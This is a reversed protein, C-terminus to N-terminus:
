RFADELIIIKMCDDNKNLIVEIVDFRCFLEYENHTLLFFNATLRIKNQKYITVYEKPNIVSCDYRTKVEIFTLIDSKKAIIDIEGFKSSFNRFIVTYGLSEVYTCALAEGYNGIDKKLSKL